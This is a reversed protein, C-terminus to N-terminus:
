LFFRLFSIKAIKGVMFNADLIVGLCKIQFPFFTSTWAQSESVQGKCTGRPRERDRSMDRESIPPCIDGMHGEM